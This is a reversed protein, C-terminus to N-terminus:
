TEGFAATRRYRRPWVRFQRPRQHPRGLVPVIIDNPLEEIDSGGQDTDNGNGNNGGTETSSSTEEGVKKFEM